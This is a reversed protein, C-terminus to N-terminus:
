ENPKQGLLRLIQRLMAHQEKQEAEIQDFHADQATKLTTLDDKTAFATLDEKTAMTEKINGADTKVTNLDTHLTSIARSHMLLGKAHENTINDLKKDISELQNLVDQSAVEVKVTKIEETRQERLQRVEGELRKQGEELRKIRDETPQNM